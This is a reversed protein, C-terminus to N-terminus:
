EPPPKGAPAERVTGARAAPAGPAGPAPPAGAAPGASQSELEKLIDRIEDPLEEEGGPVTGPVDPTDPM